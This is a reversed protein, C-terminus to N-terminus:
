GVYAADPAQHMPHDLLFLRCDRANEQECRGVGQTRNHRPDRLIEEIVVIEVDM